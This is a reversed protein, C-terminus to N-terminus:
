EPQHDIPDPEIQTRERLEVAALAEVIEQLPDPHDRLDEGLAVRKAAVPAFQM